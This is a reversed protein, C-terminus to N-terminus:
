IRKIFLKKTTRMMNKVYEKEKGSFTPVHLPIFEKSDFLEKIFTISSKFDTM